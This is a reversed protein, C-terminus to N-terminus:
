CFSKMTYQPYTYRLQWEYQGLSVDTVYLSPLHDLLGNVNLTYSCPSRKSAPDATRNRETQLTTAFRIFPFIQMQEKKHISPSKTPSTAEGCGMFRPVLRNAEIVHGECGLRETLSVGGQCWAWTLPGTQRALDVWTAAQQM